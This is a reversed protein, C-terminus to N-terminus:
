STASRVLLAVVLTVITYASTRFIWLRGLRMWYAKKEQKFAEPDSPASESFRPWALKHTEWTAYAQVVAGAMGAYLAGLNTFTFVQYGILGLSVHILVYWAFAM